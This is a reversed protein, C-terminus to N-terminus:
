DALWGVGDEKDVKNPSPMKTGLYGVFIIWVTAGVIFVTAGVIILILFFRKALSFASHFKTPLIKKPTLLLGLWFLFIYGFYLIFYKVFYEM